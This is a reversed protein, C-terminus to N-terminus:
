KEKIFFFKLSDEFTPLFYLHPCAPKLIETYLAFQTHTLSHIHPARGQVTFATRSLEDQQHLNNLDNHMTFCRPETDVAYMFFSFLMLVEVYAHVEAQPTDTTCM